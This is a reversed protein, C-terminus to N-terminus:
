LGSIYFKLNEFFFWRIQLNLMQEDFNLNLVYHNIYSLQSNNRFVGYPVNGQMSVLGNNNSYVGKYIANHRGLVGFNLVSLSDL